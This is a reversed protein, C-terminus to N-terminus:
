SAQKLNTTEFTASVSLLAAGDDRVEITIRSDTAECLHERVADCLIRRAESRAAEINPMEEGERDLTFEDVARFDFFYRPM